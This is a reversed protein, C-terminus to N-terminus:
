LSLCCLHQHAFTTTEQTKLPTGFKSSTGSAPYYIRFEVWAAELGMGWRRQPLGLLKPESSSTFILYMPLLRHFNERQERNGGRVSEHPPQTVKAPGGSQM